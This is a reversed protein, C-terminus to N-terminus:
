DLNEAGNDVILNYVLWDPGLLRLFWGELFCPSKGYGGLEGFCRNFLRECGFFRETATPSTIQCRCFNHCM